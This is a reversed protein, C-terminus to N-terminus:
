AKLRGKSPKLSIFYLGSIVVFLMDHSVISFGGMSMLRTHLPVSHPTLGRGLTVKYNDGLMVEPYPSYILIIRQLMVVTYIMYFIRYGISSIVADQDFKLSQHM